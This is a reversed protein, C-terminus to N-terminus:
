GGVVDEWGRMLEGEVRWREQGGRAGLSGGIRYVRSEWRGPRTSFFHIDFFNEMFRSIIVDRSGDDRAM